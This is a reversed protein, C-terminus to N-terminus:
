AMMGMIHDANRRIDTVNTAVNPIALLERFETLVATRDAACAPASIGLAILALTLRM